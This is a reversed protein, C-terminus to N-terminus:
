NLYIALEKQERNSNHDDISLIASISQVYDAPFNHERAGRLVHEKYWHFPAQMEDIGDAFYTFAQIKEGDVKIVEVRRDIYGFGRTEFCDLVQKEPQTMLYIVGYVLDERNGTFTLDCKGSEGQLNKRFCLRHRNLIAIDKLSAHPLRHKLRATSLNSGFAFYSIKM